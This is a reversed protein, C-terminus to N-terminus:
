RAGAKKLEAIAEDLKKRLALLAANQETITQDRLKIATEWDAIQQKLADREAATRQSSQTLEKHQETLEEKALAAEDAAKQTALLSQKLESLDKTLAEVRRNAEDRQDGMQHAIVQLKRYEERRQENQWWQMLVVGLLLACGIANILSFLSQKM